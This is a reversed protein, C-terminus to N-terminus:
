PRYYFTTTHTGETQGGQKTVAKNEPKRNLKIAFKLVALKRYSFDSDKETHAM